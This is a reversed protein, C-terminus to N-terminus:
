ASKRFSHAAEWAEIEELTGIPLAAGSIHRKMERVADRDGRLYRAVFEPDKKLSALEEQHYRQEAAPIPRQNVIEYVQEATYAGSQWLSEGYQERREAEQETMNEMVAAVDQPPQNPARGTNAIQWLAGLRQQHEPSGRLAADVFSKDAMLSTREAAASEPSYPQGNYFIHPQPAPEVAAGAGPAPSAETM